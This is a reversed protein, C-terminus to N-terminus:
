ATSLKEINNLEYNNVQLFKIYCDSSFKFMKKAGDVQNLSLFRTGLEECRMSSECLHKSICWSQGRGEITIMDLIFTRMQRSWNALDLFFDEGTSNYSASSHAQISTLQKCLEFSEEVFGIDKNVLKKESKMKNKKNQVVLM